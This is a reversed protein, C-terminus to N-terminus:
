FSFVCVDVLAEVTFKNKKEETERKRKEKEKRRKEALKMKTRM